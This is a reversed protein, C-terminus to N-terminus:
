VMMIMMVMRMMVMMVLAPLVLLTFCLFGLPTTATQKSHSALFGKLYPVQTSGMHLFSGRFPHCRHVEQTFCLFKFPTAASLFGLPTTVKLHRMGTDPTTTYTLRIQQNYTTLSEEHHLNDIESYKPFDDDVGANYEGM